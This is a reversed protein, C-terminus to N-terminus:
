RGTLSLSELHAITADLGTLTAESAERLASHRAELSAHARALSDYAGAMREFEQQMPSDSAVSGLGLPLDAAPAAQQLTANQARLEAVESELARIRGSMRSELTVLARSLDQLSQDLSM